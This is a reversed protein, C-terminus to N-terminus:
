KLLLETAIITDITTIDLFFFFARAEPYRARM